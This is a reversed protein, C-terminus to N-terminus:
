SDIPVSRNHDVRGHKKKKKKVNLSKEYNLMLVCTCYDSMSHNGYNKTSSFKWTYSQEHFCFSAEVEKLQRKVEFLLCYKSFSQM